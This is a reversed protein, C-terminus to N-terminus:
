LYDKINGINVSKIVDPLDDGFKAALKDLNTVLSMYCLFITVNKLKDEKDGFAEVFASCSTILRELQWQDIKINQENLIAKVLERIKM